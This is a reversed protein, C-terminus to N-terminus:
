VWPGLLHQVKARFNELAREATHGAARGEDVAEAALRTIGDHLRKVEAAFIEQVRGDSANTADSL